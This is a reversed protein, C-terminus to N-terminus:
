EVQFIIIQLLLINFQSDFTLVKKIISYTECLNKGRCIYCLKCNLHFYKELIILLRM